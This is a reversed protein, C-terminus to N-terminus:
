DIVAEGFNTSAVVGRLPRTNGLVPMKEESVFERNSVLRGDNCCNHSQLNTRM